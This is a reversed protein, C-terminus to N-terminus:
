ESDVEKLPCAMPRLIGRETTALPIKALACGWVGFEEYPSGDIALPCDVCTMEDDLTIVAIYTKSM